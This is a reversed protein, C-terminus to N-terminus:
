KSIQRAISSLLLYLYYHSIVSVFRLAGQEGPPLDHGQMEPMIEQDEEKESFIFM